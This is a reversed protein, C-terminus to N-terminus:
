PDFKKKFFEAIAFFKVKALRDGLQKAAKKEVKTKEAPDPFVFWTFDHYASVQEFSLHSIVYELCYTKGDLVATLDREAGTLTDHRKTKAGRQKLWREMVRIGAEHEVKGRGMDLDYGAGFAEARKVGRPTLALLKPSGPAKYGIETILGKAKLGDKARTFTPASSIRPKCRERYIGVQRFGEEAIKTHVYAENETLEGERSKPAESPASLSVKEQMYIVDEYLEEVNENRAEAEINHAPIQIPFAPIPGTIKVIAQGTELSMLSTTDPSSIQKENLTMVGGLFHGETGDGPNLAFKVRADSCVESVVESARQSVVVLGIEAERIQSVLTSIVPASELKKEKNKSFVAAQAEEVIVLNQLSDLKKNFLRYAFLWILLIETLFSAFEAIMGRTDIIINKNLLQAECGRRVSANPFGHNLHLIRNRLTSWYGFDKSYTKPRSSEIQQVLEPLTPCTEPKGNWKKYLTRLNDLFGTKFVVLGGMRDTFSEAIYNAYDEWSVRPPPNLPNFLFKRWHIHIFQRGWKGGKPDFGTVKVDDQVAGQAIIKALHTKGLGTAGFIGIHQNAYSKKLNFILDPRHILPAIEWDGALQEKTPYTFPSDLLFEFPLSSQLSTRLHSALGEDWSYSLSRLVAQTDSRNVRGALKALNYLEILPHDLPSM